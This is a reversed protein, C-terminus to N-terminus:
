GRGRGGARPTAPKRALGHMEMWWKPMVPEDKWHAYRVSTNVMLNPLHYIGSDRLEREILNDYSYSSAIILLGSPNDEAWRLVGRTADALLQGCDGYGGMGAMGGYDFIILDTGEEFVPRENSYFTPKAKALWKSLVKKYGEVEQAGTEGAGGVSDVIIGVKM